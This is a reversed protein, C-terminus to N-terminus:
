GLIERCGHATVFTELTSPRAVPGPSTRPCSPTSPASGSATTSTRRATGGVQRVDAVATTLRAMMSLVTVKELVNAVVTPSTAVDSFVTHLRLSLSLLATVSTASWAMQSTVTVTLFFRLAVRATFIAMNLFVTGLDLAVPTTLDAVHGDVAAFCAFDVAVATALGPM